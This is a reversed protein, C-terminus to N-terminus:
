PLFPMPRQTRRFYGANLLHTRGVHMSSVLPQHIHGFYVRKPQVKRVYELLGASGREHRHALVDYTLEPIDPPVHSCVVDVPGLADLKADYEDEGIEGAVKLPTPLGGGVFGVRLGEIEVVKGDVREVGSRELEGALHPSDVNGFIFYVREPLVERVDRYAQRILTQFQRGIEEERGERRRAMAARAEDFRRQARLEVVERVAEVGFVDVLIGDMTLYDIINVLDGLLLLTDHPAV